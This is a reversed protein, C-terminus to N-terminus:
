RTAYLITEGAHITYHGLYFRYGLELKDLYELILYFDEPKHYISISLKPKFRCLTQEAGHLASLESGEIDMKIFNVQGFQGANMLDDISRVPFNGGDLRADPLIFGKSTSESAQAEPLSNSINTLGYGLIEVRSALKPNMELNQQLIKLNLPIMDFAYVRGTDGVAAAFALATDGFCAGADIVYDGENPIITVDQERYFYQQESFTTSINVPWAKLRILYGLFELSFYKLRGLSGIEDADGSYLAKELERRKWFMPTNTPLKVHLQGLMRYLLLKDFLLQSSANALRSRAGFLAEKCSFFFKLHLLHYDLLFTHAFHSDFRESDFNDEVPQQALILFERLLSDLWEDSKM